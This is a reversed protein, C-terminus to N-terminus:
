ALTLAVAGAVKGDLEAVWVTAHQARHAVDGLRELYADAETLHGGHLYAARTLRAVDDYDAEVAPRVTISM